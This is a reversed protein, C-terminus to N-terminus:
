KFTDANRPLRKGDKYSVIFASSIGTREIFSKRFRVAEGHDRFSGVTYKYWGDLFEEQLTEPIKYKAILHANAQGPDKFAGCQIRFEIGTPPQSEQINTKAVPAKVSKVTDNQKLLQDISIENESIEKRNVIFISKNFRVTKAGGPPEYEFRGIITHSGYLNDNVKVKYNLIVVSDAPMRDWEIIVNQDLFLFPHNNDPGASVTFGTPFKQILKAPGQYNDKRILIKVEVAQGPELSEPTNFTIMLNEQRSDTKLKEAPETIKIEPTRVVELNPDIVLSSRTAITFRLSISTLSYLDNAASPGKFCDLLDTNTMRVAHELELRLNPGIKYSIGVAMPISMATQKSAKTLGDIQYGFNPLLVVNTDMDRRVSRFSFTGVGASLYPSLVFTKKTLLPLPDFRFSLSFESLSGAFYTNDVASTYLSGYLFQAQIGLYSRFQKNIAASVGFKSGTAIRKPLNLNNTSMDGNYSLAGPSVRLSVGKLISGQGCSDFITFPILFGLIIWIKLSNIKM